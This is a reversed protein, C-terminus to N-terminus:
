INDGFLILEQKAIDERLSFKQTITVSDEGFQEIEEFNLTEAGSPILATRALEERATEAAEDHTLLRMTNKVEYRRETILSFPLKVGLVTLPREKTELEYGGDAPPRGLPLELGLIFLRYSTLVNGTRRPSTYIYPITASYEHDTRAYVSGWAHEATIDGNAYEVIGSILLDGKAVTQGASVCTSGCMNEVSIIMGAKEAVVNCPEENDIKKEVKKAERIDVTVSSGYTNVTAWMLEPMGYEIQKAINGGDIRSRLAGQRVGADDLIQMLKPRLEDSVDPINIFWVFNSMLWIISFFLFLGLAFGSRKRYPYLRFPLGRKERVRLRLSCKKAPYRLKKYRSAVTRAVIGNETREIDWLGIGARSCLNLFREPFDGDAAFVCWGRLNILSDSFAM